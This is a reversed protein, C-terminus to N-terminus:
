RGGIRFSQWCPIESFVSPPTPRRSVNHRKRNQRVELEMSQFHISNPSKAKRSRGEMGEKSHDASDRKAPWGIMFRGSVLFTYFRVSVHTGLNSLRRRLVNRSLNQHSEKEQGNRRVCSIHLEFSHRPHWNFRTRGALFVRRNTSCVPTEKQHVFPLPSCRWPSPRLRSTLSCPANTKADQQGGTPM